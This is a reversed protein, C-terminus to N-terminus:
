PDELEATDWEFRALPKLPEQEGPSSNQGAREPCFLCAANPPADLPQGCYGCVPIKPRAAPPPIPKQDAMRQREQTELEQWSFGDGYGKDNDSM